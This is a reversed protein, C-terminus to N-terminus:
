DIKSKIMKVNNKIQNISCNRSELTYIFNNRKKKFIKLVDLQWSNKKIGLHLDNIEDNESIHVELVKDGFKNLLMEIFKIRDFNLLNSSIALHGLDIILFVKKDILEKSLLIEEIEEYSCMISNVNGNPEPFLNELAIKCSKKKELNLEEYLKNFRKIFIKIGESVSFNKKKFIFCGNQNIDADSLYGPHFGYFKLSNENSIKIANKIISKSDKFTKLNKSILNLVIPKKPAPFYNHLLFDFGKKKLKNIKNKIESNSLFNFNGSLEINFIKNESFFDFHKQEFNSIKFCSSSVFVKSM